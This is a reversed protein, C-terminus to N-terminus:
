TPTPSTSSAAASTSRRRARPRRSRASSPTSPRRQSLILAASRGVDYACTGYDLPKNTSGNVGLRVADFPSVGRVQPLAALHADITIGGPAASSSRSSSLVGHNGSHGGGIIKSSLGFLVATHPSLDTEGAEGVVGGLAPATAFDSGEVILPQGRACVGPAV